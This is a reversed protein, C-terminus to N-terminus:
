IFEGYARCRHTRIFREQARSCRSLTSPAQELEETFIEPHDRNALWWAREQEVHRQATLTFSAHRQTLAVSARAPDRERRGPSWSEYRRGFGALSQAPRRPRRRRALRRSRSAPARGGDRRAPRHTRRCGAPRVESSGEIDDHDCYCREPRVVLQSRQTTSTSPRRIPSQRRLRAM